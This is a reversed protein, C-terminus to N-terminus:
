KDWQGGRRESWGSFSNWRGGPIRFPSDEMPEYDSHPKIGIWRKFRRVLHKM